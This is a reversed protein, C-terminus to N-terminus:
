GVPPMSHATEEGFCCGTLCNDDQIVTFVFRALSTQSGAKGPTTTGALHNFEGAFVFYYNHLIANL